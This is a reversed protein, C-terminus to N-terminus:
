FRLLIFRLATSGDMETDNHHSRHFLWLFPIRHNAMHWIYMWFDFLLFAIVYRLWFPIEKLNMLGLDNVGIIGALYQNVGSIILLGILGNLLSISLNYISHRLHHQRPFYNPNFHEILFLAPYIVALVIIKYSM